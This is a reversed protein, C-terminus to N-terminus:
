RHLRVRLPAKGAPNDHKGKVSLGGGTSKLFVVQGHFVAVVTDGRHDMRALSFPLDGQVEEGFDPDDQNQPLDRPYGTAIPQKGGVLTHVSVFSASDKGVRFRGLHLGKQDTALVWWPTQASGGLFRAGEVRPGAPPKGRVSPPPALFSYSYVVHERLIAPDRGTPGPDPPHHPPPVPLRPDATTPRPDATTPGPVEPRKLNMGLLTQLSGFRGNSSRLVAWLGAPEDIWQYLLHAWPARDEISALVRPKAPDQLDIRFMFIPRVINDLVLVEDGHVLLDHGNKDRGLGLGVRGLERFTADLVILSGEAAVLMRDQHLAAAGIRLDPAATKWAVQPKFNRDLMILARTTQVVVAGHRTVHVVPMAEQGAAAFADLQVRRLVQLEGGRVALVRLEREYSFWLPTTGPDPDLALTTGPRPEALDLPETSLPPDPPAVPEPPQPPTPQAPDTGTAASAPPPLELERLGRYLRDASKEAVCLAFPGCKEHTFCPGVPHEELYRSADTERAADFLEDLFARFVHEAVAPRQSPHLKAYLEDPPTRDLVSLFGAELQSRCGRAQRLCEARTPPQDSQKRSCSLIACTALLLSSLCIRM